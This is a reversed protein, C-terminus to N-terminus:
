ESLINSDYHPEVTDDNLSGVPSLNEMFIANAIAKNDCYDDTEELSEALFDQQDDNLVVREEQAQALQMKEKLWEYDKVRKRAICQKAM